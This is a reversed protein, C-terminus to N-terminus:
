PRVDGLREGHQEATFRAQLLAHLLMWIEPEHFKTKKAVRNNIEDSLLYSYNDYSIQTLLIKGYRHRRQRLVRQPQLQPQPAAAPLRRPTLLHGPIDEM